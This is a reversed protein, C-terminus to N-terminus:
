FFPYHSHTMNSIAIPWLLATERENLEQLFCNGLSSVNPKINIAQMEQSCM